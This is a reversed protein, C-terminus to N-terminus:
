PAPQAVVGSDAGSPRIELLEVEFVLTADPPIVERGASRWGRTGYGLEPPIRLRTREGPRMGVLGQEWGPIVQEDGLTFTFPAQRERSDDFPADLTGSSDVWGVYHVTVSDGKRAPRGVGSQVLTKEVQPKALLEVEFLLTADPPIAPPAGRAGYGMRPPIILRRRGGVALGELGAEWGPIMRGSGLVFTLPEGRDRSSDFQEGPTGSAPDYLWGEYHVSVIDGAAAEPGAGRRVDMVLVDEAVERYEPEGGCGALFALTLVLVAAGILGGVPAVVLARRQLETSRM